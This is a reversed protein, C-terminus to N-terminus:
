SAVIAKLRKFADAAISVEEYIARAAHADIRDFHDPETAVLIGAIELVAPSVSIKEPGTKFYCSPRHAARPFLIVTYRGNQYHAFLNFMPEDATDAIRRLADISREIDAEVQVASTGGFVFMNRGFSSHAQVPRGGAMVAVQSLIPIENASAAQFHLHDPASAGCRPGNYMAAMDPGIAQALRLLAGVRGAM